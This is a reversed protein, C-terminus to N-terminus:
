PIRVTVRSSTQTTTLLFPFDEVVLEEHAAPPVAEDGDVLRRLRPESDIPRMRRRASHGEATRVRTNLSRAVEGYQCPMGTDRHNRALALASIMATPRVGLRAAHVLRDQHRDGGLTLQDGRAGAQLRRADRV